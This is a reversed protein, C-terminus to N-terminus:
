QQQGVYVVWDATPETDMGTGTGTLTDTSGDLATVDLSINGGPDSSVEYWYYVGSAPDLGEPCGGIDNIGSTGTTGPANYTPPNQGPDALVYDKLSTAETAGDWQVAYFYYNGYSNKFTFDPGVFGKDQLDSLKPPFVAWELYFRELADRLVTLDALAKRERANDIADMIRPFAVTALIGLIAVVVLLEILTFGKQGSLHKRLAMM